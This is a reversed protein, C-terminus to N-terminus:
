PRASARGQRQGLGANDPLPTAGKAVVLAGAAALAILLSMWRLDAIPPDRFWELAFKAANDLAVYTLAMQGAYARFSRRRWLWAALAVSWAAFYLQLPHVPLSAPADAAILGSRLHLQWAVSGAPFAIAWPLSSPTGHCCGNVFCGVRVVAMAVPAALAAADALLAVERGGWVVALVGMAVAAGIIGGPYRFGGALEAGLPAGAGRELL